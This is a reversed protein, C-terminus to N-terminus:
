CVDSGSNEAIWQVYKSLKSYVQPYAHLCDKGWSVIGIQVWCGSSIESVLPGGSDGFCAGMGPTKTCIVTEPRHHWSQSANSALWLDECTEVTIVDVTVKQLNYPIKIEDQNISGWGSAVALGGYPVDDEEAICIPKVNPRNQFDLSESLEVLALDNITQAVDFSPHNIYRITTIWELDDITTSGVGVTAEGQIAPIGFFSFCHAATFVWKSKIISGGCNSSYAGSWVIKIFVQYPFEGPKAKAGNVIRTELYTINTTSCGNKCVVSNEQLVNLLQIALLKATQQIARQRITALQPVASCRYACVFIKKLTVGM